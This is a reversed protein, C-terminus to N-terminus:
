KFNIRKSLEIADEKIKALEINRDILEQETYKLFEFKSITKDNVQSINWVFLFGPQIDKTPTNFVSLEVEAIEEPNSPETIDYLHILCTKNDLDISEIYGEFTQLINETM